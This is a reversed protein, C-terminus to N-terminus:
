MTDSEQSGMFQLRGSQEKFIIPLPAGKCPVTGPTHRGAYLSCPSCCHGSQQSLQVQNGLKCFINFMMVVFRPYVREDLFVVRLYYISKVHFIQCIFSHVSSTASPGFYNVNQSPDSVFCLSSVPSLM